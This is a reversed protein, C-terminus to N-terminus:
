RVVRRRKRKKPEQLPSFIKKSRTISRKKPVVIEDSDQDSDKNDQDGLIEEKDESICFTSSVESTSTLASSSSLSLSACKKRKGYTKNKSASQNLSEQNDQLSVKFSEQALSSDATVKDSGKLVNNDEDEDDDDDDIFLQKKCDNKSNYKKILIDDDSSELDIMEKVKDLDNEKKVKLQKFILVENLYKEELKRIKKELSAADLNSELCDQPLKLISVNCSKKLKTDRVIFDCLDADSKFKFNSSPSTSTSTLSSVSSDVSTSDFNNINLDQSEEEPDPKHESKLRTKTKSTEKCNIEQNSIYKTSSQLDLQGKLHSSKKSIALKNSNHTEQKSKNPSSVLHDPKSYIKNKIKEELLKIVEDDAEDLLKEIFSTQFNLSKTRFSRVLSEFRENECEM